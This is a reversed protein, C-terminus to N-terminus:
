LTTSIFTVNFPLWTSTTIAANTTGNRYRSASMGGSTNITLLWVAYSSGQCLVNLDVAPRFGAPLTGISVTGGAAVESAPSVAGCVNVVHGDKSYKPTQASNYAVCASNLTLATPATYRGSDLGACWAAPDHFTVRRTGNADIYLYLGNTVDSNNVRRRAVFSRYLSDGTTHGTQSYFNQYGNADYGMLSQGYHASEPPTGPDSEEAEDYLNLYGNKRLRLGGSWPFDAVAVVGDHIQFPTEIASTSRKLVKLPMFVDLADENSPGGIAVGKGGQRIDIPYYQSTVIGKATVSRTSGGLDTLAVTVVYQKDPDCDADLYTTTTGTTGTLNTLTIAVDPDDGKDVTVVVSTPHNSQGPIAFLNWSFRVAVSTGEDNADHSTADVRQVSNITVKPDAYTRQWQAYLTANANAIYSAGASYSTGSGSSSTNWGAFAFDTRTPSLSDAWLNLPTNYVKTLATCGSKLTGGNANPTVTYPAYWQAYLTLAANATYSAGSAYATGTGAAATNWNKFVYNTRTPRTSSLPLTEGYWKTQASPTGSTAGNGNYTVAYSPKAPVTIDASSTSTYTLSISKTAATKGRTFSKSKNPTAVTKWTTGTTYYTVDDKAHTYLTTGDCAVTLSHLGFPLYSGSSSFRAEVKSLTVTTTTDTNTVSYTIRHYLTGGSVTTSRTLTAM